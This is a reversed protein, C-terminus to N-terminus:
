HRSENSPSMPSYDNLVRVTSVIYISIIEEEYNCDVGLLLWGDFIKDEVGEISTLVVFVSAGTDM